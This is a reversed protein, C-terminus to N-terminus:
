LYNLIVPYVFEGVASRLELSVLIKAGNIGHKM